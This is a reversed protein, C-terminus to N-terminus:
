FLKLDFSKMVIGALKSLKLIQVADDIRGVGDEKMYPKLALLLNIRSDHVPGNLQSILPLLKFIMSPDILGGLLSGADGGGGGGGGGMSAAGALMDALGGMSSAPAAEAPEPAADGTGGLAGLGGSSLMGAVARVKELGEPSNLLSSIKDSLEDM